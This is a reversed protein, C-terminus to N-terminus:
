TALDQMTWIIEQHSPPSDKGNLLFFVLKEAGIQFYKGLAM